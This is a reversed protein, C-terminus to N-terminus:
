ILDLMGVRPCTEVSADALSDVEAIEVANCDDAYLTLNESCHPLNTGTTAAEQCAPQCDLVHGCPVVRFYTVGKGAWGLPLQEFDTNGCLTQEIANNDGGGPRLPLCRMARDKVWQLRWSHARDAVPGLRLDVFVDRAATMRYEIVGRRENEFNTLCNTLTRTYCKKFGRVGAAASLLLVFFILTSSPM